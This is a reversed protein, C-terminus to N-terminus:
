HKYFAITEGKQLEWCGVGRCACTSCNGGCIKWSDQIETDKFIVESTPFDYPNNMPFGKWASFIIKLNNPISGGEAVFQNVIDYQKTFALFMTHPLEEAIKVMHRLYDIDVIDGSVHWRFFREM